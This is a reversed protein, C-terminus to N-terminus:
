FFPVPVLFAHQLFMVNAAVLQAVYLFGVYVAVASFGVIRAPWNNFWRRPPKGLAKRRDAWGMAAGLLLKAPLMFAVFVLAPAWLLQTPTAEIRLLYLPLCLLCLTFLSLAHAWPRYRFRRRIKGVALFSRFKGTRAFEIQLFPLYFLVFAMGIAGVLGVLAAPPLDTARLGVLMLTAPLAIWLLAGGSARLGLWWLRPFQLHAVLEYLRDSSKSWTDPRWIERLFRLPRPWLLHWWRGGRMAAWGVHMMWLVTIAFAAIRWGFASGSGPQLLQASYSLDTVLWVPLWLLAALLVFTGLIGALRLGPLASSWKRGNALNAAAVLLYGLSAFQVVPVASIVALLVCLSALDWCRALLWFPLYGVARLTIKPKRSSEEGPNPRNIPVDASALVPEAPVLRASSEVGSGPVRLVPEAVLRPPEASPGAQVRPPESSTPVPVAEAPRRAVTHVRPPDGPLNAPASPEAQTNAPQRPNSAKTMFEAQTLLM